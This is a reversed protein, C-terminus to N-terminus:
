KDKLNRLYELNIHKLFTANVKKKTFEISILPKNTLFTYRIKWDGADLCYEKIIDSVHEQAWTVRNIEKTLFCNKKQTNIFMEKIEIDLESLDRSYSFNKTEILYIRKKNKDIGLIDIDGLFQKQKNEIKKSNISKVCKYFIVEPIEKLYEYAYDNFKDGYFELIKGNLANISLKGDKSSPEKGRLITQVLHYHLNEVMRNGWIYCDDCRIIPKRM